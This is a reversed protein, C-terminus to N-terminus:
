GRKDKLMDRIDFIENAECNTYGCKKFVPCNEEIFKIINDVKKVLEKDEKKEEKLQNLLEKVVEARLM